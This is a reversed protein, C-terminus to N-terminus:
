TLNVKIHPNLFFYTPEFIFIVIETLHNAFIESTFRKESVFVSSNRWRM